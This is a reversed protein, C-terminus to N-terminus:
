KKGDSHSHHSLSVLSAPAPATVNLRSVASQPNSNQPVGPKAGPNSVKNGVSGSSGASDTRKHGPNANSGGSTRSLQEVNSSSVNSPNTRKVDGIPASTADFVATNLDVSREGDGTEFTQVISPKIAAARQKITGVNENAFPLTNSDTSSSSATSEFSTTSESRKDLPTFVQSDAGKGVGAGGGSSAPVDRGPSIRKMQAGGTATLLHQQDPRPNAAKMHSPYGPNHHPGHL